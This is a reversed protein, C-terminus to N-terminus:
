QKCKTHRCKAAVERAVVEAAAMQVRARNSPGADPDGMDDDFDSSHQMVVDDTLKKRRGKGKPQETAEAPEGTTLLTQDAAPTPPRYRGILTPPLMVQAEVAQRRIRTMEAEATADRLNELQVRAHTDEWRIYTRSPLDIKYKDSNVINAVQEFTPRKRFQSVDVKM